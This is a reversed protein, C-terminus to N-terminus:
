AGGGGGSEYSSSIIITYDNGETFGSEIAWSYSSATSSINSAINEVYVNNKYLDITFTGWTGSAPTKTWSITHSEGSDWVAGTSPNIVSISAM